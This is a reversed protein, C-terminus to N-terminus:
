VGELARTLDEVLLMASECTEAMAQSKARSDKMQHLQNCLVVHQELDTYMFRRVMSAPEQESRSTSRKSADQLKRFLTKPRSLEVQVM